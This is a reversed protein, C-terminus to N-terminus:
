VHEGPDAHHADAQDENDYGFSGEGYVTEENEDIDRFHRATQTGMVKSEKATLPKEKDAVTHLDHERDDEDKM